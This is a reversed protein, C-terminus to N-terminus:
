RLDYPASEVTVALIWAGTDLREFVTLGSGSQVRGEHAGAQIAARVEPVEFPTRELARNAHIGASLKVGRTRGSLVVDGATDLLASGQYGEVGSVALSSLVEELQMHLAAVGAPKGDAGRFPTSCAILLQGSTADPYPSGWVPAWSSRASTYWSRERAEFGAPFFQNGPYVLVVGSEFALDTWLIPSRERAM